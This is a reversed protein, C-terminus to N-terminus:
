LSKITSYASFTIFRALSMLRNGFTSLGHTDLLSQATRKRTNIETNNSGKQRRQGPSQGASLSMESGHDLFTHPLLIFVPLIPILARYSMGSM